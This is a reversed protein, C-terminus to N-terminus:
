CTVAKHKKAFSECAAKTLPKSLITAETYQKLVTETHDVIFGGDTWTGDPNKALGGCFAHIKPGKQVVEVGNVVDDFVCDLQHHQGLPGAYDVCGSRLRKCFTETDAYSSTSYEIIYDRTYNLGGQSFTAEVSSVCLAAVLAVTAAVSFRAFM